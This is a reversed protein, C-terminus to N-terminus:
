WASLRVPQHRLEDSLSCSLYLEGHGPIRNGLDRYSGGGPCSPMVELYRDPGVLEARLDQNAALHAGPALGNLNSYSRVANQVNHITMVCAARDSGRKYAKIGTFLVGILAILVFIVVTLEIASLGPRLTSRCPKSLNNM